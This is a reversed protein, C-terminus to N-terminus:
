ANESDLLGLTRLVDETSEWLPVPGPWKAMFDKQAQTRQDGGKHKSKREANKVDGIKYGSQPHWILLDVPQAIIYVSVGM